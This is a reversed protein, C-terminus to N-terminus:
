KPPCCSASTILGLFVFDRADSITAGGTGSLQSAMGFGELTVVGTLGLMLPTVIISGISSCSGSSSMDRSPLTMVLAICSVFAFYSPVVLPPVAMSLPTSCPLIILIRGLIHLKTAVLVVVFPIVVFITAGGSGRCGVLLEELHEWYSNESILFGVAQRLRGLGVLNNVPEGAYRQIFMGLSISIRNSSILVGGLM